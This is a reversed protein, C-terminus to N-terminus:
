SRTLSWFKPGCRLTPATTPKPSFVCGIRYSSRSECTNGTVTVTVTTFLSSDVNIRLDAKRLFAPFLGRPSLVKVATWVLGAGVRSATDRRCLRSKASESLNSRPSDPSSRQLCTSIHCAPRSSFGQPACLVNRLPCRPARSADFGQVLVMRSASVCRHFQPGIAPMTLIHLRPLSTQSSFALASTRWESQSITAIQLSTAGSLQLKSARVVRPCVWRLKHVVKDPSLLEEPM